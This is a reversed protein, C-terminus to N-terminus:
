LSGEVVTTLFFFRKTRYWSSGELTTIWLRRVPTATPPPVEVRVVTRLPVDVVTPPRELVRSLTPAPARLPWPADPWPLAPAPEEVLPEPWVPRAGLLPEEPLLPPPLLLPLPDVVLRGCYRTSEIV